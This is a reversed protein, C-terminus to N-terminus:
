KSLADIMSQLDTKSFQYKEQCYPCVLEAKGDEKLITTLEDRGISALASSVRESSCNCYYAPTITQNQILMSFGETITLLIDEASMNEQLMQTVSPMKAINKELQIGTEETAEPMLQLIFGGACIVNTDPGVLVGLGVSSPIQESTAYYYTLDEAIEGSVIPVQGIYPEKLGLDRVVYLTGEGVATKVDLKNKDNPSLVVHPNGVYGKVRSQADSVACCTGLPGDGKFQISIMDAEGKQMCGMMAAATLSRGLAATVTPYTDHIEHAKQVLETTEAVFIRISGDFSNARLIKDPM